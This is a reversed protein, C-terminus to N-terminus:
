RNKNFNGASKRKFQHVSVKASLNELTVGISFPASPNTVQCLFYCTILFGLIFLAWAASACCHSHVTFASLIQNWGLTM